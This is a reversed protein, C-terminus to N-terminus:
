QSVDAAEKTSPRWSPGSVTTFGADAFTALGRDSAALYRLFQEAAAPQESSRCVAVTLASQQEALEPAAIARIGPYQAAVADWLIGADVSGILVDNAVDGVTPKEVGVRRVQAAFASWRGAAQLGRRTAQGIATQDPNGIAVRCSLLDALTAIRQANDPRVGIVPTMRALEVPARVIRKELALDTFAADAALFLDGQRSVQLQSLLTNSGGYQRHVVVGCEQQYQRCIQDVPERAAAACYLRLTPTAGRTAKPPAPLLAVLGALSLVAFALLRYLPNIGSM